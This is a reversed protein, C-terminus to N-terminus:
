YREYQGSHGADFIRTLAGSPTVQLELRRFAMPDAMSHQFKGVRLTLADGARSWCGSAFEDLAGYALMYAFRGDAKLEIESGVEMVGRLAYRGALAADAPACGAARAPALAALAFALAPVVARLAPM